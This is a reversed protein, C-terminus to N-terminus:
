EAPAEPEPESGPWSHSTTDASDRNNGTGINITNGDGSADVVIVTGGPIPAAESNRTRTSKGRLRDWDDDLKGQALRTVVYAGGVVTAFSAPSQFTYRVTNKVLEWPGGSDLIDGVVMVDPGVRRLYLRAPDLYSEREPAPNAERYAETAGPEVGGNGLLGLRELAASQDELQARLAEITAPEQGLAIGALVALGGIGLGRNRM